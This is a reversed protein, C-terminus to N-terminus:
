PYAGTEIASTRVYKLQEPITSETTFATFKSIQHEAKDVFFFPNFFGTMLSVLKQDLKNNNKLFYLYVNVM